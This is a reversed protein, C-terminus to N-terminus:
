WSRMRTFVSNRQAPIAIAIWVLPLVLLAKSLRSRNVTDPYPAASGRYKAAALPIVCAILLVWAGTWAASLASIILQEEPAHRMGGMGAMISRSMTGGFIGGCFVVIIVELSAGVLVWGCARSFPVENVVQVIRSMLLVRWAAVVALLCLNAVAANYSTLFREVPIAYLWAIPATMWFLGMFSRWQSGQPPPETGVPVMMNKALFSRLIWFLFSGSFLSFLLPGFFWLPTELVFNQDYTRAIATLVVLGIGLWLSNKDTAVSRIADANGILYRALTRLNV